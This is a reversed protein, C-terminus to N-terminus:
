KIDAEFKVRYKGALARVAASCQESLTADTWDQLVVGRLAEFAAPAAPAIAELRM